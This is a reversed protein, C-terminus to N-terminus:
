LGEVRMKVDGISIIDGPSLVVGSAPVERSNVYTGNLSGSWEMSIRRGSACPAACSRCPLIHGSTLGARCAVRYQGDRLIWSGSLTDQEVTCHRRSIYCSEEEKIAVHNWVDDSGRGIYIVTCDDTFLEHLVYARGPEEGQMVRLQVGRRTDRSFTAPVGTDSVPRASDYVPVLRLVDDITQLREKFDPVLCGEILPLWEDGRTVGALRARDWIGNKGCHIYQPVDAETALPGFPLSGTLLQYMMVGFSFIDTTPLVTANGRKPNIQEPPMYAITGFRQRPIGSWGRQTLRNNQDGSIGFDTLVAHRSDRLLVNEPKLDRHVKGNVHLGKLGLLIHTAVLGLDLQTKRLASHLDGGACYEMVIYANGRVVGKVVSHVLYDSKILGTEYEREFRKLLNPRECSAIEWLKLLKLAYVGGRADTVRFVQGFTGEGLFADVKWRSDIYDGPEFQCREAVATDSLAM